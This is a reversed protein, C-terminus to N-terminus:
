AFVDVMGRGALMAHQGPLAIAGIGESGRLLAEAALRNENKQDQTGFRSPSESGVEAEGLNIGAGSLIERL